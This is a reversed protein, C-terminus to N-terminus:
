NWSTREPWMTSDGELFAIRWPTVNNVELRGILKGCWAVQDRRAPTGKCVVLMAWGRVSDSM